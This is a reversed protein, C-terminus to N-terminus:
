QINSALKISTNLKGIMKRLPECDVYADLLMDKLEQLLSIVGKSSDAQLVFSDNRDISGYYFLDFKDTVSNDYESFFWDELKSKISSLRAYIADPNVEYQEIAKILRAALKHSEISMVSNPRRENYPANWTRMPLTKSSSWRYITGKAVARNKDQPTVCLPSFFTDHGKLSIGTWDEETIPYPMSDIKTMLGKFDYGISADTSVFMHSMEPYYMGAWKSAQLHWNHEKALAAREGDVVPALYPEDILITQGTDPDYWDTSHDSKPLKNNHDRHPYAAKYDRNM